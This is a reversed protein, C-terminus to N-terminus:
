LLPVFQEPPPFAVLYPESVPGMTAVVGDDLLGRVWGPLAPDRLSRMEFSAVHYGVAGPVFDMGRVYKMLSYWGVYVAVGAEGPPQIVEPADDHVVPLSAKQELFNALRRLQEDFVGYGANGDTEPAIGRSDIVIKGRLGDREVRASNAILDRVQQPNRGDLRSVMLVAEPPAEAEERALPNVLWGAAPANQIWLTALESDFAADSQE